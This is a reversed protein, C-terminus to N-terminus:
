HKPPHAHNSFEIEVGSARLLAIVAARPFTGHGSGAYMSGDYWVLVESNGNRSWKRKDLWPLVDDASDTLRPVRFAYGHGGYGGIEWEPELEPDRVALKKWGAVHVAFAENLQDDTPNILKM